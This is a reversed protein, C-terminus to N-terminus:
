EPAALRYGVRKVTQLHDRASGLRSRLRAILSVIRQSEDSSQTEAPWLETQLHEYTVVDGHSRALTLLARFELYTLLVPENGVYVLHSAPDIRLRGVVTEATSLATSAREEPADVLSGMMERPFTTGGARVTRISELLLARSAQKLLFGDAGAVIASRLYDDDEFSTIMLVRSHPSVERVARTADFGNGDPMRVDMLIVDPTESAALEVAAPGSAAEGVVEIDPVDLLARLGARVMPHDDVILVRAPQEGTM